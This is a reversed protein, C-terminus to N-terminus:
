DITEGVNLSILSDWLGGSTLSAPTLTWTGSSYPAWAALNANTKYDKAGSTTINESFLGLCQTASNNSPSTWAETVVCPGALAPASATIATVGAIFALATLSKKITM